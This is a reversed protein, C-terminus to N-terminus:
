TQHRQLTWSMISDNCVGTGAQTLQLPQIQQQYKNFVKLDRQVKKMLQRHNLTGQKAEKMPCTQHTSTQHSKKKANYLRQTCKRSWSSSNRENFVNSSRNKISATTMVRQNIRNNMKQRSTQMEQFNILSMKDMLNLSIRMTDTSTLRRDLNIIQCTHAERRRQQSTKYTLLIIMVVLM